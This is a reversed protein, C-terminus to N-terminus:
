RLEFAYIRARGGWELDPEHLAVAKDGVIFVLNTDNKKYM